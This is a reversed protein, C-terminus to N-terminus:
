ISLNKFTGKKEVFALIPVKYYNRGNFAFPKLYTACDSFLEKYEEDVLVHSKNAIDEDKLTKELGSHSHLYNLGNSM